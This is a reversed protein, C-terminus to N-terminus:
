ISNSPSDENSKKEVLNNTCERELSGESASEKARSDSTSGKHVGKQSTLHYGKQKVEILVKQFEPRSTMMEIATDIDVVKRARGSEPWQDKVEIVYLLFMSMRVHNHSSSGDSAISAYSTVSASDDWREAVRKHSTMTERIKTALCEKSAPSSADPSAEKSVSPLPSTGVVTSNETSHIVQKETQNMLHEEESHIDLSMVSPFRTHLDFNYMRWFEDYRM